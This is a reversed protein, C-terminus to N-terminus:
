EFDGYDAEKIRPDPTGSIIAEIMDQFNSTLEEPAEENDNEAFPFYTEM